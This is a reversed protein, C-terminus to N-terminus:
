CILKLNANVHMMNVLIEPGVVKTRKGSVWAGQCCHCSCIHVTCVTAAVLLTTAAEPLTTAAVPLTTAAATLTTAAVHSLSLQPKHYCRSSKHSFVAFVTSSM